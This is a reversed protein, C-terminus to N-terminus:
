IMNMLIKFQYLHFDGKSVFNRLVFIFLERNLRILVYVKIYLFSHPVIHNPDRKIGCYLLWFHWLIVRM